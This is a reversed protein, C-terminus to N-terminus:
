RSKNPLGLTPRGQKVEPISDGAVFKEYVKAHEVVQAAERDHRHALKLCEIRIEELTM